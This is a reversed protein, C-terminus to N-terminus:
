RSVGLYDAVLKELQDASKIEVYEQYAINGKADVLILKPLFNARLKGDPDVVLPYQVKSRAVLSRAASGVTEQWDVGLVSVKGAYARAFDAYIPLERKCPNCWSAWQNVVAPGKFTGLDVDPQGAFGRLTIDPLRDSKKAPSSDCATPVLVLLAVLLLGFARRV